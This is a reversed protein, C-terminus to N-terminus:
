AVEAKMDCDSDEATMEYIIFGSERRVIPLDMTILGQWSGTNTFGRCAKRDNRVALYSRGDSKLRDAISKLVMRRENDDCIVNLVYFCIITDFPGQPLEPAYYPDYGKCGLRRADEGRGCGYDLVDGNIYGNGHLWRAPASLKNRRIATKHAVVVVERGSM